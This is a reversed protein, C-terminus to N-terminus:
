LMTKCTGNNVAANHCRMCGDCGSCTIATLGKCHPCVKM